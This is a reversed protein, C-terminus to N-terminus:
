YTFSLYGYCQRYINFNDILGCPVSRNTNVNESLRGGYSMMMSIELNKRCAQQLHVLQANM